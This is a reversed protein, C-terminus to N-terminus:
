YRIKDINKNSHKDNEQLLQKRGRETQLGEAKRAEEGKESCCSSARRHHHHLHETKETRKINKTQM